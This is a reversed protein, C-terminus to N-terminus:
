DFRRMTPDRAVPRRAESCWWFEFSRDQILCPGYGSSKHSSHLSADPSPPLVSVHARAYLSGQLCVVSSHQPKSVSSMCCLIGCSPSDIVPRKANSERREKAFRCVYLSPILVDLVGWTKLGPQFGKVWCYLKGYPMVPSCEHARTQGSVTRISVFRHLTARVEVECEDMRQSGVVVDWLQFWDKGNEREPFLACTRVGCISSQRASVHYRSSVHLRRRSSERQERGM